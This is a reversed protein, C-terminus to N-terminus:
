RGPSEDDWRAWDADTADPAAQEAVIRMAAATTTTPSTSM